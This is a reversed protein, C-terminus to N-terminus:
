KQNNRDLFYQKAQEVQIKIGEILDNLSAYKKTDALRKLFKVELEQGYFDGDNYDILHTEFQKSTVDDITEPAGIFTIAQYWKDNLKAETIYIGDQPLVFNRDYIFNATKYGLQRGLQRGQIVIATYSYECLLNKNAQEIDGNAIFQKIKTTSIDDGNRSIDKVLFHKKLLEVGLQDNGFKFDEGVVIQKFKWQKLFTNIFTIADMNTKQLDMIVISNPRYLENILNIRKELSYIPLNNKKMFNFTLVTTKGSLDRFLKDHGHHIGDFFGIVLNDTELQVPNNLEKILYYLM